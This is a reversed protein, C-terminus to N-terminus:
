KEIGPGIMVPTSLVAAILILSFYPTVLSVLCKSKKTSTAETILDLMTAGAQFIYVCVILCGIDEGLSEVLFCKDPVPIGEVISHSAHSHLPTSSSAM